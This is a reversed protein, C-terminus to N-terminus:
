RLRVFLFHCGEICPPMLRLTDGTIRISMPYALEQRKEDFLVLKASHNGTSDVRYTRAATLSNDFENGMNVTSVSQQATFDITQVPKLPIAETVYGSGPSYGREVYQWSGVLPQGAIPQVYEEQQCAWLSITLLGAFWSCRYLNM